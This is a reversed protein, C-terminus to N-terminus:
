DLLEKPLESICAEDYLVDFSDEYGDWGSVGGRVLAAWRLSDKILNYYDGTPIEITNGAEKMAAKLSFSKAQRPTHASM